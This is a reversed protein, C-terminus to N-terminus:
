AQNKWERLCAFVDVSTALPTQARATAAHVVDPERIRLFPNTALETQLSTPVTPLNDARQQLAEEYRALLAPNDPEVTLAWRANSLTYEHACCILTDPPLSTLKGLSSVMQAPTGEFLRGCGMSFITDGCFLLPPCGEPISYYAVHGATHGPIDVVTCTLKLDPIHLQDDQKVAVNRSPIRESAPGYVVADPAYRLLDNIGGTHDGHHHTILIASLVLNRQQLALLVPEAEGPDVALAHGAYELLWIYNDNFAPLPTLSYGTTAFSALVNMM